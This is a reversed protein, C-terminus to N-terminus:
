VIPPECEIKSVIERATEKQICNLSEGQQPGLLRIILKLQSLPNKGRLLPQRGLLEAFICGASWIDM